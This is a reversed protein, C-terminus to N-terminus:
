PLITEPRFRGNELSTAEIQVNCCLFSSEFSGMQVAGFKYNLCTRDKVRQDLAQTALDGAHIRPGGVLM